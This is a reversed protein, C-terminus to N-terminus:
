MHLLSYCPILGVARHIKEVAAWVCAGVTKGWGAGGGRRKLEVRQELEVIGHCGM